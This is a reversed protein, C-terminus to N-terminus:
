TQSPRGCIWACLISSNHPFFSRCMPRGACSPWGTRALAVILGGQLDIALLRYAPTSALQAHTSWLVNANPGPRQFLEPFNQRLADSQLGVGLADLFPLVELENAQRAFHAALQCVLPVPQEPTSLALGTPDGFPCLLRLITLIDAQRSPQGTAEGLSTAVAELRPSIMTEPPLAAQPIMFTAEPAQTVM